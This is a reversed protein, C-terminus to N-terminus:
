KVDPQWFARFRQTGPRRADVSRWQAAIPRRERDLKTRPRQFVINRHWMKENNVVPCNSNRQSRKNGRTKPKAEFVRARRNEASVRNSGSESRRTIAIDGRRILPYKYLQRSRLEWRTASSFQYRAHWETGNREIDIGSRYVRAIPDRRARAFTAFNNGM